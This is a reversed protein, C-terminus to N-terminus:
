MQNALDFFYFKRNKAGRLIKEGFEGKKAKKMKWFLMLFPAFTRTRFFDALAYINWSVWMISSDWVWIKRLFDFNTLPVVM